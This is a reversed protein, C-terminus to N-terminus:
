IVATDRMELTLNGTVTSVDIAGSGDGLRGSIREESRLSDELELSCKVSGKITSLSVRSECGDPVGVLVNGNVTRVNLSGTVPENIDLDIEGAVTEYSLVKGHSNRVKISGTNSRVNQTGTVSRFFVNGSKNEAVLSPTQSDEVSLDGTQTRAEIPGNLGRLKIDGTQSFVRCGAQTDLVSIDGSETRIDLSASGPLQIEIDVHLGMMDPQRIVVSAEGEEVILTYGDAKEKADDLNAGKIKAVASISGVDFGGVVKVSGVPNEIKVTKGSQFKLPLTVERTETSNLWGLNVKGKGIDHIGSKLADLGKKASTRAQKSVEGWNVSDMGEKTLKEINEVFHKFPDKNHGPPPPPVSDEDHIPEEEARGESVYFADILDAADEPSLRGEGVLKCIRRIEDKM